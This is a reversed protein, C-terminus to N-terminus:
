TQPEYQEPDGRPNGLDIGPPGFIDYASLSNKPGHGVYHRMFPLLFLRAHRTDKGPMIM